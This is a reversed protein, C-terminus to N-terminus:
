TGIPSLRVQNAAPIIEANALLKDLVVESANSVGISRVKGSKQLVELQKWTEAIDWETDIDRTGDPRLPFFPDTGNPNLPIPWHM